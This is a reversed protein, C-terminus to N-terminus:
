THYNLLPAISFSLVLHVSPNIYNSSDNETLFESIICSFLQYTRPWYLQVVAKTHALTSINIKQNVSHIPEAFSLNADLTFGLYKVIRSGVIMTGDIECAVDVVAAPNGLVLWSSGM